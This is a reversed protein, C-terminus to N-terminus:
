LHACGILRPTSLVLLRFDIMQSQHSRFGRIFRPDIALPGAKPSQQWHVFPGGAVALLMEWFQAGAM